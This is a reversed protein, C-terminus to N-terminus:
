DVTAELDNDDVVSRRRVGVVVQHLPEGPHGPNPLRLRPRRRRTVLPPALGRAIDHDENVVIADESRSCQILETVGQRRVIRDPGRDLGQVPSAQDGVEHVGLMEHGVLHLVALHTPEDSCTDPDPACSELKDSSEVLVEEMAPLVDVEAKAQLLGAKAESDTWLCDDVVVM